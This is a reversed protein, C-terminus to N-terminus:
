RRPVPHRVTATGGAGLRAMAGPLRQAPGRDGVAAWLAVAIFLAQLPVRFWLPTAAGGNFVVGEVAAHVNAPLMLSFLVALGFGAAQRTAALVLGAAGLFELVGTLYVMTHPWPVFPPVMDAMDGHGPMPTTGSRIFHTTATVTLMVALGHAAAVRWTPFRAIGLAGLLRFGLAPGILLMLTGLM